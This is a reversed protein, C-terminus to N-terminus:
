FNPCKVTVRRQEPQVYILSLEFAGRSNTAPTINANIDYSIGFNWRDMELIASVTTHVYDIGTSTSAADQGTKLSNSFQGWVGARIAVERWDRNTYRFSTGVFSQMSVGNQGMVAIAPLMSLNDNLPLEGGGHGVWRTPISANSSNDFSVNPNNVHHLAGGVYISKNEEFVAYWLLGANVDLYLNTNQNIFNEGNDLDRDVFHDTGDYQATFWLASYDISNQGFGAQLGAVLYQNSSRYRNGSLQKMYAVGLNGRNQSFKSIDQEDRMFSVGLAIYDDRVAQIRYDISAAMTRFPNDGLVSAWQERYNIAARFSGTHVGIMAPSLQHPSAYFQAFYPDTTQAQSNNIFCFLFLYALLTFKINM